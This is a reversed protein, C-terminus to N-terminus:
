SVHRRLTELRTRFEADARIEAESPSLTVTLTLVFM